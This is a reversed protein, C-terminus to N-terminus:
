RHYRCTCFCYLFYKHQPDNCRSFSTSSPAAHQLMASDRIDSTPSPVSPASGLHHKQLGSSPRFLPLLSFRLTQTAKIHSQRSSPQPRGAIARRPEYPTVRTFIKASYNKGSNPWIGGGGGGRYHCTRVAVTSLVGITSRELPSPIVFFPELPLFSFFIYQIIIFTERESRLL